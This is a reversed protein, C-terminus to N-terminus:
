RAKSFWDFRWSLFCSDAHWGYAHDKRVNVYVEGIGMASVIMDSLQDATKREKAMSSDGIQFRDRAILDPRRFLQFILAATKAPDPFESVAKPRDTQKGSIDDGSQVM